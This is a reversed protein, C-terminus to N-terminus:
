PSKMSDTLRHVENVIRDEIEPRWSSPFGYEVMASTGEYGGERLIRLSPIYAMVDNSYGMVWTRGRGFEYKLRLAYDVVVEGGLAIVLIENGVRWVQVPYPYTEPLSGKRRYEELILRLCRQIMPSVTQLLQAQLENVTPAPELPLDILSFAAQLPGEVPKMRGSMSQIVAQGLEKGYQVALELKRRPLPNCDAGCGAWFLATSGPIQKEVYLQAFGAYDGCYQDINLTTNHCAYGFVVAKVQGNKGTVKLVPVDHDVPGIPNEGNIIGELTYQRRNKAFGAQGQGYHFQAPELRSLAQHVVQIIKELLEEAYRRSLNWQDEPAMHIGQLRDPLVPGCHTHSSNFLVAARPLQTESQIRRAAQDTFDAWLNILDTTILVLRAGADDELAIAKAYLDHIKGQSPHDRDGYGALWMDCDPTIVISAVGAKMGAWGAPSWILAPGVFGLVMLLWSRFIM